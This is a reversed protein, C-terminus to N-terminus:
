KNGRDKIHGQIMSILESYYKIASPENKGKKEDEIRLKFVAISNNSMALDIKAVEPELKKAEQTYIGHYNMKDIISEKKNQLEYSAKNLQTIKKEISIDGETVKGKDSALKKFIGLAAGLAHLEYGKLDELNVEGDRHIAQELKQVDILVQSKGGRKMKMDNPFKAYIAKIMKANNAAEEGPAFGEFKSLIIKARGM